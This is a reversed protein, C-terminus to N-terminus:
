FNGIGIYTLTTAYIGAPQSKAINIIYSVTYLRPDSPSSSDALTNGNNFEYYNPTAYASTVVGNGPGAPLSGVAPQSNSTLNIGFQSVGPIAPSDSSLPPLVNNGSIMTNGSLVISYGNQANTEVLMQSQASSTYNVSLDGFNIFDGNSQNCSYNSISVGVCFLIYPPVTASITYENVIALAIGGQDTSSGSADATPYTQIRAFFTGVVTPNVVGTFTFSQTGALAVTPTRTLILDNASTLPSISFGGAGSQSSLIANQINFGAPANCVQTVLPSNSCFDIAVSGLTEGYDITFNIQYQTTAGPQDSALIISRQGLEAGYVSLTFYSALIVAIPMSAWAWLSLKWIKIRLSHRM